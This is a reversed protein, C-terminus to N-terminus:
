ADQMVPRDEEVPYPVKLALSLGTRRAGVGRDRALRSRHHAAFTFAVGTVLSVAGAVGVGIAVNRTQIGDAKIADARSRDVDSLSGTTRADDFIDRMAEAQRVRVGIAGALVGVLGM